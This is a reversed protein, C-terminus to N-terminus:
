YLVEYETVKIEDEPYVCKDFKQTNRLIKGDYYDFADYWAEACYFSGDACRTELYFLNKGPMVVRRPAKYIEAHVNNRIVEVPTKILKLGKIRKSQIDKKLEEIMEEEMWNM